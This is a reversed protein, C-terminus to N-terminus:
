TERTLLFLVLNALQSFSSEIVASPNKKVIIEEKLHEAFAIIEADPVDEFNPDVRATAATWQKYLAMLEDNTMKDIVAETLHPGHEAGPAETSARELSKKALLINQWLATRLHVPTEDMTEAIAQTIQVHEGITLPRLLVSYGRVRVKQRYATGMRMQELQEMSDTFNLDYKPTNM